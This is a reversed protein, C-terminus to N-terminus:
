NRRLFSAHPLTPLGTVKEKIVCFVHDPSPAGLKDFEEDCGNWSRLLVEKEDEQWIRRHSTAADTSRSKEDPEASRLVISSDVDIAANELKSALGALAEGRCM